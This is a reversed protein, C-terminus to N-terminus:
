HNANVKRKARNMAVQFVNKTWEENWIKELEDSQPDPVRDITTTRQETGRASASLVFAPPRKRFQDIIKFQTIRLLWGKFSCREPDYQFEGMKRAVTIVTEQVVEEAESETLGAKRATGFILHRYTDFFQRWSAQDERDKLRKVLSQRTSLENREMM